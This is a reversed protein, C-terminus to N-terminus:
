NSDIWSPHQFILIIRFQSVQNNAKDYKQVTYEFIVAEEKDDAFVRDPRISKPM